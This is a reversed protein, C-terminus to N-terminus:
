VGVGSSASCGGDAGGETGASASIGADTSADAAPGASADAFSQVAQAQAADFAEMESLYGESMQATQSLAEESTLSPDNKAHQYYNNVSDRLTADFQERTVHNEMPTIEKNNNLDLSKQTEIMETHIMSELNKNSVPLNTSYKANLLVNETDKVVNEGYKAKLEAIKAEYGDNSIHEAYAKTATSEGFQAAHEQALATARAEGESRASLETPNLYYFDYSTKGDMYQCAREGNVNSISFDNAKCVATEHASAKAQDLAIAAQFSHTSEHVISEYAKYAADEVPLTINKDGYQYTLTSNKVMESNLVISNGEHYGMVAGSMAELSVKCPEIGKEIAARNATEQLLNVKQTESLSNWSNQYYLARLSSDSYNSYFTPYPSVSNNNMIM